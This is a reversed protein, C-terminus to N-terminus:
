PPTRVPRRLGLTLLYLYEIVFELLCLLENPSISKKAACRHAHSHDAGDDDEKEEVDPEAHDGVVLDEPLDLGVPRVVDFNQLLDAFM